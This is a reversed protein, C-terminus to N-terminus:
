IVATIFKREVNKLVAAAVQDVKGRIGGADTSFHQGAHLFQHALFAPADLLNGELSAGVTLTRTQGM